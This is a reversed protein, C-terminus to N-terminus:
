RRQYFIERLQEKFTGSAQIAKQFSEKDLVYLQLDELARVSANRREGSILSAEGFFDGPACTAVRAIGGEGSQVVEASGSRLLFFRDGEDGQRIVMSGSAFREITMKQSVETIVAPTLQSFIPCRRLVECMEITESVGIDSVLRGDVMKLVRDAIDLIRDDHTVILIASGQKKALERLADAVIRGSQQDLAATPEDALVIRPRRVLARAVAVRQRQGGSLQDPKYHIRHELGLRALAESALDDLRSGAPPDLELALRVNQIATLSDFLNHLQFIIGFDRRVQVLERPGLGQLERGLVRVSGEQVQRLAGMLTLLTTKGSGSPGTLISIEGPNLDLSVDFLVQSRGEGKGFSHNVKQVRVTPENM